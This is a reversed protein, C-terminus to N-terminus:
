DSTASLAFSGGESWADVVVLYDGAPVSTLELIAAAGGTPADDACGLAVGQGCDTLLYVVTDFNTGPLATTLTLRSAPESLHLRAIAEPRGKPDGSSCSVPADWLSPGAAVGTLTGDLALEPAAACEATALQAKAQCRHSTGVAVCVSTLPNCMDFGNPDCGQGAARVPTATLRATKRASEHGAADRAVVGIQTVLTDFGVVPTVTALFAGDGIDEFAGIEFASSEPVEDNDLDVLLEQGNNDLFQIAITAVDEEADVGQVLIRPGGEGKLYAVKALEPALGEQCQAPTGRCGLGPACRDDIASADCADGLARIAQTTVEVRVDQSLEGRRDRLAVEVKAINPYAALVGRLRVDALFSTDGDVPTEFAILQENSDTDDLGSRFALVPRDAADFLRVRTLEADGDADAGDISLVLDHGRAGAMHASVSVLSPPEAEAAVDGDGRTDAGVADVADVEDPSGGGDCALSALGVACGLWWNTTAM